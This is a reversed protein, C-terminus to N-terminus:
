ACKKSRIKVDQPWYNPPASQSYMQKSFALEKENSVGYLHQIMSFNGKTPIFQSRYCQSQYHEFVNGEFMFTKEECHTTEGNDIFKEAYKWDDFEKYTWKSAIINGMPDTTNEMKEIYIFCPILERINKHILIPRQTDMFVSVDFHGHEEFWRSVWDPLERKSSDYYRQVESLYIRSCPLVPLVPVYENEFGMHFGDMYYSGTYRKYGSQVSVKFNSYVPSQLPLDFNFSGGANIDCIVNCCNQYLEIDSESRNLYKVMDAVMFATKGVRPKGFVATIM